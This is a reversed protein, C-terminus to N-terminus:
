LTGAISEEIMMTIAAALFDEFSKGDDSAADRITEEHEKAVELVNRVLDKISTWDISDGSRDIPVPEDWPVNCSSITQTHCGRKKLRAVCRNADAKSTFTMLEGSLYADHAWPIPSWMEDWTLLHAVGMDSILYKPREAVM